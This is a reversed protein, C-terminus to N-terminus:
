TNKPEIGTVEVIEGAMCFGAANKILKYKIWVTMGDKQFATPLPSSPVLKRDTDLKFLWKCGDVDFRLVTAAVYGLGAWDKQPVVATDQNKKVSHCSGLSLALLVILLFIFKTHKMPWTQILPRSEPITKGPPLYSVYRM